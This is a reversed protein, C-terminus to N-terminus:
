WRSTRSRRCHCRSGRETGALLFVHARDLYREALGNIHRRIGGGLNHSVMLIVPLGSGRVLAATVAFRFPDAAKTVRSNDQETGFGAQDRTTAGSATAGAPARAAFSDCALRHHWGATAVRRCFEAEAGPGEGFGGAARVADRRIYWCAGTPM